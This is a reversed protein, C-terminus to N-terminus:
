NLPIVANITITGASFVTPTDAWFQIFAAGSNVYSGVFQIPWPQGGTDVM